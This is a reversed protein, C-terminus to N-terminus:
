AHSGRTEYQTMRLAYFPIDRLMGKPRVVCESKDFTTELLGEHNGHTM